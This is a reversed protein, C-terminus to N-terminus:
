TQQTKRRRITQRSADTFRPSAEAAPDLLAFVRSRAGRHGKDGAAVLWAVAVQSDVELGGAGELICDGLLYMAAPHQAKAAIAFHRVAATEDEELAGDGVYYLSGLAYHAQAHGEAAARRYYAVALFDDQIGATGYQYCQGLACLSDSDSGVKYLSVAETCTAPSGLLATALVFREAVCDAGSSQCAALAARLGPIESEEPQTEPWSRKPISEPGASDSPWRRRLAAYSKDTSEAFVKPADPLELACWASVSAASTGVVSAALHRLM